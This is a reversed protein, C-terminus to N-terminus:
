PETRNSVRGPGGDGAPHRELSRSRARGRSVAFALALGFVLVLAAIILITAIGTGESPNGGRGGPDAQDVAFVLLSVVDM